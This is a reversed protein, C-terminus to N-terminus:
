HQTTPPLSRLWRMDSNYQAHADWGESFGLDYNARLVDSLHAALEDAEADTLRAVFNLGTLSTLQVARSMEAGEAAKTAGKRELTGTKGRM